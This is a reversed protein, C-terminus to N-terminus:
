TTLAIEIIDPHSIGLRQSPCLGKTYRDNERHFNTDRPEMLDKQFMLSGSDAVVCKSNAFVLM